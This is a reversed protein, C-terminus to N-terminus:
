RQFPVARARPQLNSGDDSNARLRAEFAWGLWSQRTRHHETRKGASSTSSFLTIRVSVNLRIQQSRRHRAIQGPARVTLLREAQLVNPAHLPGATERREAQVDDEAASTADNESSTGRLDLKEKGFARSRAEAGPRHGRGIASSQRVLTGPNKRMRAPIM